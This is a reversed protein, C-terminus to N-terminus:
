DCYSKDWGILEALMVCFPDGALSGAYYIGGVVRELDDDSLGEMDMLPNKELGYGQEAALASLKDASNGESTAFVKLEKLGLNVDGGAGM